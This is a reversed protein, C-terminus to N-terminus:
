PCHMSPTPCLVFHWRTGIPPLVRIQVAREFFKAAGTSRMNALVKALAEATAATRADDEDMLTGWADMAKLLLQSAM